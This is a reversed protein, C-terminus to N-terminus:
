CTALQDFLDGGRDVFLADFADGVHAIVAVAVAHADHQFQLAALLGFDDEVVQVLVRLKCILKPMM